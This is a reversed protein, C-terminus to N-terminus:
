VIDLRLMNTALIFWRKGYRMNSPSYASCNFSGCASAVRPSSIPRHIFVTTTDSRGGGIIFHPLWARESNADMIDKVNSRRSRQDSLCKFREFSSSPNFIGSCGHCAFQAITCHQLWKLIAEKSPQKLYQVSHPQQIIDCITKAELLTLGLPGFSASDPPPSLQSFM